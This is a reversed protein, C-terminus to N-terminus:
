PSGCSFRRGSLVVSGLLVVECGIFLFAGGTLPRVACADGVFMRLLGGIDRLQEKQGAFLQSQASGSWPIGV